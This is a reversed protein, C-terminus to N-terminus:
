IGISNIPLYGVLQILTHMKQIAYKELEEGPTLCHKKSPIGTEELVELQSTVVQLLSLLILIGLEREVEEKEKEEQIGGSPLKYCSSHPLLISQVNLMGPYNVQINHVEPM